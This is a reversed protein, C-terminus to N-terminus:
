GEWRFLRAGFFLCVVTFVVLMLLRPAIDIIGAGDIMVARAAAIIQTLPLAEAVLQLWRPAADLTFWAGSLLMMPWTCVNLLGGALEESPTRSAMLLGLSILSMAGLLLISFLLAYSGRVTFDLFWHTGIFVVTAVALILWLRSVVQAALFEFAGLPTAKLRRLVGSKRYRVIVYGVGFLSAFMMNVGLIGPLVWDIYRVADGTVPERNYNATALLQDLIYGNPSTENIWYRKTRGDILADLQHREVKRVGVSEETLPLFSTYRQAALAHETESSLVGVRFRTQDEGSFVISLGIVLLVPFIVNWAWSSRDRIFERNRAVLVALFRRIGIAVGSM